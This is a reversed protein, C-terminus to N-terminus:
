WSGRSPRLLAVTVALPAGPSLAGPRAMAMTAMWRGLCGQRFRRAERDTRNPPELAEEVIEFDADTEHCLGCDNRAHPYPLVLEPAPEM